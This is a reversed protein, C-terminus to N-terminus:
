KKDKYIKIQVRMLDNKTGEFHAQRIYMTCHAYTCTVVTSYSFVKKLMKLRNPRKISEKKVSCRRGGGSKVTDSSAPITGLVTATKSNVTLVALWKLSCRMWQSQVFYKSVVREKRQKVHNKDHESYYFKRIVPYGLLDNQKTVYM